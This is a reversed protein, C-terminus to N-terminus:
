TRGGGGEKFLAQDHYLRVGDVGVLEAAARAFRPSRVFRAVGDDKQWLNAIQLFARGYTGREELPRTEANHEFAAAEIVPRYAALEEATALGRVVVHGDHQFRTAADPELVHRSDLPPLTPVVPFSDLGISSRCFKVRSLAAGVLRPETGEPSPLPNPPPM